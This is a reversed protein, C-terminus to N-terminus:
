VIRYVRESVQELGVGHMEMVDLGRQDPLVGLAIMDRALSAIELTPGEHADIAAFYTRLLARHVSQVSASPTHTSPTNLRRGHEDSPGMCMLSLYSGEVEEEDENRVRKEVSSRWGGGEGCAVMLMTFIVANPEVGRVLMEKVLRRASRADRRRAFAALLTGFAISDPRIGRDNLMALFADTATRIPPPSPVAPSSSITTTGISAVHNINNDLGEANSRSSTDSDEVTNATTGRRRMSGGGNDVRSVGEKFDTPGLRDVVGVKAFTDVLCTYTEVTPQVGVSLMYSYVGLAGSVNGERAYAGIMVNCVMADLLPACVSHGSLKPTRRGIDDNNGKIKSLSDLNTTADSPVFGRSSQGGDEEVVGNEGCLSSSVVDSFLKEVMPIHGGRKALANMLVHYTVVDPSTGEGGKRRSEWMGNDTAAPKSVIKKSATMERFLGLAREMADLDEDNMLLGQMMITYSITDLPPPKTPISPSSGSSTSSSSPVSAASAAVAQFSEWARDIQRTRVLSSLLANFTTADPEIGYRDMESLIFDMSPIDVKETETAITPHVVATAKNSHQQQQGSRSLGEYGASKENQLSSSLAAGRVAGSGVGEFKCMMCGKMLVSFVHLDPKLGGGVVHRRYVRMAGGVDGSRVFGDMLATEIVINPPFGAELMEIRYSLASSLNGCKSHHDILLSYTYADPGGEGVHGKGLDLVAIGGRQQHGGVSDTVGGEWLKQEKKLDSFLREAEEVCGEKLMAGIMQNVAVTDPVLGDLEVMDRFTEAAERFRKLRMQMRMLVTYTVVNPRIGRSLMTDWVRRCGDYDNMRAYSDLLTTYTHLTLSHHHPARASLKRMLDEYLARSRYPSGRRNYMGMLITYTDADPPLGLADMDANVDHLFRPVDWRSFSHSASKFFSLADSKMVIASGTHSAPPPFTSFGATDNNKSTTSLSFGRPLVTDVVKRYWCTAWSRDGVRAFGDIIIGVLQLYQSLSFSAGKRSLRRLRQKGDSSSDNSSISNMKNTNNESNSCKVLVVFRREVDKWFSMMRDVDEAYRLISLVNRYDEFTLKSSAGKKRDKIDWLVMTALDARKRTWETRCSEVNIHDYDNNENNMYSNRGSERREQAYRLRSKVGVNGDMGDDDFRMRELVRLFQSLTSPSSILRELGESDLTLDEYLEWLRDLSEKPEKRRVMLGEARNTGGRLPTSGGDVDAEVLADVFATWARSRGPRKNPPSTKKDKKHLPKTERSCKSSPAELEEVAVALSSYTRKTTTGEVISCEVGVKLSKSFPFGETIRSRTFGPTSLHLTGPTPAQSDNRRIAKASSPFLRKLLELRRCELEYSRWCAKSAPSGWAAVSRLPMSESSPKRRDQQFAHYFISQGTQSTTRQRANQHKAADM